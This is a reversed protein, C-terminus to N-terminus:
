PAAGADSSTSASPAPLARTDEAPGCASILKPSLEIPDLRALPDNELWAKCAATALGVAGLAAYAELLQRQITAVQPRSLKGMALFTGGRRIADVYRGGRVDGLLSPLESEVQLQADRSQGEAEGLRAEAAVAAYERGEKTLALDTLPVLVVDGRLLKRGGLGNYHDLVWAKNRDGTFEYAVKVIDDGDKIVVRLNFPVIIESGDKPALWPSTDNAASFVVDRYKAGLLDEALAPWTDGAVVRRHGIAPVELRMGPVIRTGGELDLGNAAVLIKEHQIRGYMREAVSALTDTPRVLYTFASAPETLFVSLLGVALAGFWKRRAPKPSVQATQRERTM